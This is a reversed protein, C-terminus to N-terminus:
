FVYQTQIFLENEDNGTVGKLNRGMRYTLQVKIDHKQIFWNTGISTRTWTDAYNDADQAQYAAVLEIRGPVMMYGGEISYNKLDTSGNKYIGSTVNAAVTDAKFLNYEADVSFGAARFAGSLEFGTVKDVDFKKGDPDPTDIYTNNDDDNSWRFAAIGITARTKHNFDGQSFKLNGFPHFDMRGGIIWGENFDSDRNVPSDFDLKGTDPDISASAVSFGYTLRKDSNHGTIHIGANRDPTGYNHDGVFTREVLQQKKSSTLFERSFPFGKNGVTIKINHFGKYQMYADKIALENKGEAKGMDWQFKGKWDKHLSGEIYPRFRRFFVKDSSDGGDPDKYHYQLQIRGGLKVYKDDKKYVTIGAADTDSPIYLNMIVAVALVTFFLKLFRPIASM